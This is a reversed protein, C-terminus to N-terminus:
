DEQIKNSYYLCYKKVPCIKCLPRRAKCIERGHWIFWHHAHNWEKKPINKMLQKETTLVDKAGAIGIRNAVRFVHTDVAIAAFNTAISLFVNATKRGVGALQMLEERSGPIEGKYKNILTNCTQLINKAKIKYLGISKIKSELNSPSLRVFAFPDPCTQFLDKTVKNVQKDTTQASLITAILLQFPTNYTLATTREHYNEKLIRVIKKIETHTLM